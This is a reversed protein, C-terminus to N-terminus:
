LRECVSKPIKPSPQARTEWEDLIAKEESEYADDDEFIDDDYEVDSKGPSKGPTTKGRATPNSPKNYSLDAGTGSSSLSFSSARLLTLLSPSVPM